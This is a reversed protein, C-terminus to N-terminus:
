NAALKKELENLKFEIKKLYLFSEESAEPTSNNIETNNMLERIEKVERLIEARNDSDIKKTLLRTLRHDVEILTPNYVAEKKNKNFHVTLMLEHSGSSITAFQSDNVRYSYALGINEVDFGVMAHYVYNTQFGVKAWVKNMFRGEVFGAYHEGITNLRQFAFAPTIQWQSGLKFKYQTYAHMYANIDGDSLIMSPLSFSVDLAKWQFLLGAGSILQNRNYYNQNLTPDTLDLQDFGEIRSQNLSNNLIGANVGFTIRSYADFKATYAYAVTAQTTQFAGRSDTILSAGLGQSKSFKSFGGVTFTKTGNALGKNQVLGGTFLQLHDTNNAYAPNINFLNNLRFSYFDFSQVQAQLQMGCLLGFILLSTKKM